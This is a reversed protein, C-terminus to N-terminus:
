MRAKSAVEEFDRNVQIYRTLHQLLGLGTPFVLAGGLWPPEFSDIFANLGPDVIAGCISHNGDGGIMALTFAAQAAAFAEVVFIRPEAVSADVILQYPEPERRCSPM